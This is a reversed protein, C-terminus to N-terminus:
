PLIKSPRLIQSIEPKDFDNISLIVHEEHARQARQRWALWYLSGLWVWVAGDSMFSPASAPDVELEATDNVVFSISLRPACANAVVVSQCNLPLDVRRNSVPSKRLCACSNTYRLTAGLSRGSRAPPGPYRQLPAHGLQPLETQLHCHHQPCEEPRPQCKFETCRFKLASSRQVIRHARFDSSTSQQHLSRRHFVRKLAFFLVLRRVQSRRAVLLAWYWNQM